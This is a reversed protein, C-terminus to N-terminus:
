KTEQKYEPKTVMPMDLMLVELVLRPNANLRLHEQATSISVTFSKIENLTFYGAWDPLKDELNVNTIAQSFGTKVLLLDRWFDLWLDMEEQLSENNQGFRTALQAALAFREEFGTQMIDILSNVREEHQKLLNDDRAATLAWGPCGHSLCALLKARSSEVGCSSTLTTEVESTAIPKLDLRQCRSTITEPLQSINETMLIFVVRPPPEELTKLLCNAAENSLLEAGNVIFVKYSGEFPSMNASHRLQRIQEISIETKSKLEDAKTSPSLGIIQIDAHKASAIKQCSFCQGCPPAAESCNLAQALNIALTM